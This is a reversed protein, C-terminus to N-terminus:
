QLVSAAPNELHLGVLDLLEQRYIPKSYTPVTEIFRSLGKLNSESTNSMAIIPIHPFIEKLARITQVGVEYSYVFDLQTDDDSVPMHLDCVILDFTESKLIKYAEKPCSAEWVDYGADLLLNATIERYEECDDILLVTKM